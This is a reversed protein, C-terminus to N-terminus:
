SEHPEGDLKKAEALRKMAIQCYTKSLDCGIWRRGLFKSAVLTSGLGCCCDLVIQGPQTLSEILFMLEEVPKTCPHLKPLPGINEYIVLSDRHPFEIPQQEKTQVIWNHRTANMGKISFRTLTWVRHGGFWDGFRQCFKAGQAWALVGNPKLVRRCEQYMPAHYDWHLDPDGNAPDIGWDYQYDKATGYMTDTICADISASPLESLLSFANGHFVKNCFKDM